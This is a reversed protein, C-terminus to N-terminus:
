SIFNPAFTRNKNIEYLVWTDNKSRNAVNTITIAM